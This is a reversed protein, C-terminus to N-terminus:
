RADENEQENNAMKIIHSEVFESLKKNLGGIVALRGAMTRFLANENIHIVISDPSLVEVVINAKSYDTPQEDFRYVQTDIRGEVNVM